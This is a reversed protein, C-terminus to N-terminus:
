RRAIVAYFMPMVPLARDLLAAAYLMKAYFSPAAKRFSRRLLIEPVTIVWFHLVCSMAGGLRLLEIDRGFREEIVGRAYQRFGHTLYCTLSWPAPVVHIQVGGTVLLTELRRILVADDPIHELASVSIILDFDRGVDAHHADGRVFRTRLSDGAARPRFRDAIDVGVYDGRLGAESLLPVLWGAGCGVDLIRVARDPVLGRLAELLFTESALRGPSQGAARALSASVESRHFRSRPGRWAGRFNRAANILVYALRERTSLKLDGNIEDRTV